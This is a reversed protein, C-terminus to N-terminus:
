YPAPLPITLAPASPRSRSQMPTTRGDVENPILFIPYPMQMKATKDMEAGKGFEM